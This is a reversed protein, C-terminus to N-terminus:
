ATPAPPVPWTAPYLPKLSAGLLEEIARRDLYEWGKRRNAVEPAIGRLHLSREIWSNVPADRDPYARSLKDLYAFVRMSGDKARYGIFGDYDPFRECSPKFLMITARTANNLRSTIETQAQDLTTCESM